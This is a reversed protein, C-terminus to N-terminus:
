YFERAHRGKQEVLAISASMFRIDSEATESPVAVPEGHAIDMAMTPLFKSQLVLRAIWLERAAARQGRLPGPLYCMVNPRSANM